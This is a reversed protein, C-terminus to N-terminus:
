EIFNITEVANKIKLDINNYNFVDKSSTEKEILDLTCDELPIAPFYLSFYLWDKNSKFHHQTPAVPINDAKILNLKEDKGKIKIFTDKAIRVWGGNIYYWMTSYGFDFKTFSNSITVRLLKANEKESNYSPNNLLYKKNINKKM